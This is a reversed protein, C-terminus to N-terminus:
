TGFRVVHSRYASQELHCTGRLLTFTQSTLPWDRSLCYRHHLQATRVLHSANFSTNRWNPRSVLRTWEARWCRQRTSSANAYQLGTSNDFYHDPTPRGNASLHARASNNQARQLKDVTAEPAGYLLSNCYDLRSNILSCALTQAFSQTLLHCVHRIARAHYNCSKSKSQNRSSSTLVHGSQTRPVCMMGDHQTETQRVDTM